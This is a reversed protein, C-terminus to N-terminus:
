QGDEKNEQTTKNKEAIQRKVFEIYTKFDAGYHIVGDQVIVLACSKVQAISPIERLFRGDGERLIYINGLETSIMTLAKRDRDIELDGFWIKKARQDFINANFITTPQGLSKSRYLMRGNMGLYQLAIGSVKTIKQDIYLSGNKNTRGRNM